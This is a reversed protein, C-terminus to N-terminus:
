DPCKIGKTVFKNGMEEPDFSEYLDGAEMEIMSDRTIFVKLSKFECEADCYAEPDSKADTCFCGELDEDYVGGKGNCYVASQCSTELVCNLADDIFSGDPCYPRVM